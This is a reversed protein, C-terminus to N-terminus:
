IHTCHTDMAEYDYGRLEKSIYRAWGAADYLPVVDIRGGMWVGRWTDKLQSIFKDISMSQPKILMGHAHLEKTATMRHEIFTVNTLPMKGKQTKELRNLWLKVSKRVQKETLPHKSTLVKGYKDTLNPSVRYRGGVSRTIKKEFQRFTLTYGVDFIRNRGVQQQILYQLEYLTRRNLFSSEQKQIHQRLLWFSPYFNDMKEIGCLWDLTDLRTREYNLLEMNKQKNDMKNM